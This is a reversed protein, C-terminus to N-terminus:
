KTREAPSLVMRFGILNGFDVPHGRLRIAARVYRRNSSWSGGRVVRLDPGNLHERGDTPTYPYGYDPKHLDMGWKSRTWEYVNGSLDLLVTGPTAGKPFMGVPSTQKLGTEDYNAHDPTIEDGWPYKGGGRGEGRRPSPAPYPSRAAKEWEAESPLTIHYQGSALAQWFLAAEEGQGSGGAAQNSAAELQEELWRCYALAEYWTIGVVPRTAAAWKSDGWFHPRSRDMRSLVWEKYQRVFDKDPFTEIATFDPEAGNRWSWGEPTWYRETEYGDAAIFAAYQQNTVPYRAIWFEPLHLKHRPKENDYADDDDDASGMWFEGAPIRVFGLAPEPQSRLFAPLGWRTDDFRTDGLAALTDAAVLREAPTLLGDEVIKLLWRRIRGAVAQFAAEGPAREKLRLEVLAQGALVAALYDKETVERAYEVETPVLTQVIGVAGGLGGQRKKGVGLLFVERWWAPDAYVLQRLKVAVDQEVATLHCAALYEQFSRHPFAYVNERRGLLLGSRTELYRLLLDPNFDEPLMACFVDLVEGRSIDASDDDRKEEGAQRLHTQYALKELAARIKEEGLGLAKSISPEWDAEGKENRIERGRQWRALLLKVSEEYLDARDEPLKGWSSDLTAMLTLLLPRSALDALYAKAQIGAALNRSRQRATNEDWGMVPRVAQYFRTVFREIQDENFPALALLQFNPLRWKPDAYAYPRATLLVRSSAPLSRALENVSELLCKRRRDAEPVEDLGDLLFLGGREALRAQLYPILQAAAPQGIRETVEAFFAQWLFRVSGKQGDAPLYRAAQRLVLRVPLLPKLEDPLPASQGLALADALLFTLYNTFTTKGSGADGVLVLLRAAPAAISELLPARDNGLGRALHLGFARPDKAEEVLPSVVHLDTYVDSLPVEDQSLPAVFNPDVVGLPLRRCELALSRYYMKLLVEPPVQEAALTLRNHDGTVIVVGQANGGIIVSGDALTALIKDRGIFDGGGTSVNGAVFAGGDTQVLSQLEAELSRIEEAHDEGLEQLTRYADLKRRLAQIRERLTPM